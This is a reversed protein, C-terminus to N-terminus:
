KQLKGVGESSCRGENGMVEFGGSESIQIQILQCALFYM